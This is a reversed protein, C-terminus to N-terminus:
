GVVEIQVTTQVTVMSCHVFLCGVVETSYTQITVMCQLTSVTVWGGRDTSYDTCDGYQLTRIFVWGGRYQLDTRDGYVATYSYVGLWRQVTTQITVMCQLTSVTVWGGRDTSYDTCDGYQLTRIFVWGGRYQLDTRDGYVATYSYVGLWRQVTTQITVM